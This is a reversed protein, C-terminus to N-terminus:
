RRHMPGSSFRHLRYGLHVQRARGCGLVDFGEVCALEGLQAALHALDDDVFRGRVAPMDGGVEGHDLEGDREMVHEAGGGVLDDEVNRVLAIRVLEEGPARLRKQVGGVITLDGAKGVRVLRLVIEKGHAMSRGRHAECATKGLRAVERALRVVHDRHDAVARERAAKGELAQAVCGLEAAPEDDDDVVVFLGDGLVVAAEVAIEGLQARGMACGLVVEEAGEPEVVTIELAAVVDEREGVRELVQAAARARRHQMDVGCLAQAQAKGLGIGLRPVVYPGEVDGRALAPGLATMGVDSGVVCLDRALKQEAAHLGIAANDAYGGCRGVDHPEGGVHAGRGPVLEDVRANGLLVGHGKRGREGFGTGLGDETYVAGKQLAGVVLEPM